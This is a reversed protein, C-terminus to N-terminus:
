NKDPLILPKIDVIFTGDLAELPYVKLKDREIALIKVTHLGIPNPRDPSRTNFVGMHAADTQNRPYCQLVNRDALHLWSLLIVDSGVHLGHLAALYKPDIIVWAEPAGEFEQLPCDEKRKLSSRVVGIFTLSPPSESKKDSMVTLLYPQCASSILISIIGLCDEGPKVHLTSFHYSSEKVKKTSYIAVSL